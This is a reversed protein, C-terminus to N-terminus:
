YPAIWAGTIEKAIVTDQLDSFKSSTAFVFCGWCVWLPKQLGLTAIYLSGFNTNRQEQFSGAEFTNCKGVFMLLM